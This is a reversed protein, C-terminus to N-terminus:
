YARQFKGAPQFAPRLWHGKFNDEKKEGAQPERLSVVGWDYFGVFRLVDYLKGQSFPVKINKSVFYPPVSWELTTAYGNDGVAEAPAYGRLNAIGGLQYEETATLTNPSLQAQNKWLLTSSFPMKQLRVFTITDKVFKGGAGVRSTSPDKAKSGGMIDPIGFGLENDLITRGFNDSVDLDFSGKLVRMRDSSIKSGQQYNFVDKYDFGLHGILSVNETDLLNHNTFLSYIHSKGRANVDEFEKGLHLKNEAAVFGVETAKTVPLLYRLSTLRYAHAEAIQYQLTLSDDFGLLNNDKLIAEYRDRGIFRSGYNDWDLGLHIPLHDKVELTVDTTGPEKGPVLVARASRDAYQNIKSLNARLKNYDFPEGKKMAFRREFLSAKFYHNGTVNLNGMLGEVVRIELIGNEIKQPPLYARSTIYGKQRYADTILGAIKQMEGLTLEKGKYKLVIDQVEKESLFTVGTVNIQKILTKEKSESVPALAPVEQKIEPAKAKQEIKQRLQKEKEQLQINRQQESVEQAPTIAFAYTGIM